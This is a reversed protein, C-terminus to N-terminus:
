ASGQLAVAQPREAIRARVAIAFLRPLPLLLEVGTRMGGAGPAFHAIDDADLPLGRKVLESASQVLWGGAAFLWGAGALMMLATTLEKSLLVDGERASDM